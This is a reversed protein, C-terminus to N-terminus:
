PLTFTSLIMNHDSPWEGADQYTDITFSNAGEVGHTMIVDYRPAIGSGDATLPKFANVTPYKLNTVSAADATDFYGDSVLTDHPAWGNSAQDNQWDNLDGAVIIPAGTTDLKNMKDVVTKVQDSRLQCYSTQQAATGTTREDLHVSVVWFPGGVTPATAADHHGSTDIGQLEVYSAWRTDSPPDGPLLPEQIACSAQFSADNCSFGAALRFRSTDWLVRVGQLSGPISTYFTSRNEAYTIGDSQLTGNAALADMLSKVQGQDSEPGNGPSTTPIDEQLALIGPHYKAINDVVRGIRDKYWNYQDDLDYEGTSSKAKSNRINYSGMTVTEPNASSSALGKVSVVHLKGDSRTVEKSGSADVSWVRYFIAAGSGAPAGALALRTAGMTFTRTSASLHFTHEGRGHKPLGDSGTPSFKSLGTEIRIGTTKTKAKTSVKTILITAQGVSPGTESAVTFKMPSTLSSADASTALAVSGGLVVCVALGSILARKM